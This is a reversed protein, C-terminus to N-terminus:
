ELEVLNCQGIAAYPNPITWVSFRGHSLLVIEIKRQRGEACWRVTDSLLREPAM